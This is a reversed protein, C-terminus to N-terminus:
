DEGEPSRDPDAERLRDVVEDLPVYHNPNEFVEMRALQSGAPEPEDGWAMKGFKDRTDYLNKGGYVEHLQEHAPHGSGVGPLEQVDCVDLKEANTVDERHEEMPFGRHHISTGHIDARRGLAGRYSNFIKRGKADPHNEAYREGTVVAHEHGAALERDYAITRVAGTTLVDRLQELRADTTEVELSNPATGDSSPRAGDQRDLFDGFAAAYAEIGSDRWSVELRRLEAENHAEVRDGNDAGNQHGLKEM